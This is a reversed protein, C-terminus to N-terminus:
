AGFLTEEVLGCFIHCVLVHCEQVLPTERAPARICIDCLGATKGGSEGTLGVSFLGKERCMHFANLVNKADGSTSIGFFMDGKAGLAEVQRSFVHEYGSDNAISTLVSTDTTLAIAPLAPRDFNLRNVLEGAVHQADAASGGNGAVLLKNGRKFADVAAQAAEAIAGIAADDNM